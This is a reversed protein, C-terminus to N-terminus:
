FLIIAINKIRQKYEVYTIKGKYYALSLKLINM